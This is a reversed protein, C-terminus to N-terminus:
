PADERTSADIIEIEIFDETVQRDGAPTVFVIDFVANGLPWGKTEAISAAKVRYIAANEDLVSGELTAILVDARGGVETRLKAEVGWGPMPVPAGTDGDKLVGTYDFSTGRKYRM